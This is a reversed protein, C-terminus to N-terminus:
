LSLTYIILKVTESGCAIDHLKSWVYLDFHSQVSSATQDQIWSDVGSSDENIDKDVPLIKSKDLYFTNASSWHHVKTTLASKFVNHPFSISTVKTLVTSVTLTWCTHRESIQPLEREYMYKEM